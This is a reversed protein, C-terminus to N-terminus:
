GSLVILTPLALPGFREEGFGHDYTTSGLPALIANTGDVDSSQFTLLTIGKAVVMFLIGMVACTVRGKFILQLLANPDLSRTEHLSHLLRDRCPAPHGRLM